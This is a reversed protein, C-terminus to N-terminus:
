HVPEVRNEEILSQLAPEGHVQAYLEASAANNLPDFDSHTEDSIFDEGYAKTTRFSWCWGEDYGIVDFELEDAYLKALHAYVPEPPSWATSFELVLEFRNALRVIASVHKALDPAIGVNQALFVPGNSDCDTNRQRGEQRKRDKQHHRCDFM